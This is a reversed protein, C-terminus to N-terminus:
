TKSANEVTACISNLAGTDYISVGNIIGRFTQLEVTTHSSSYRLHEPSWSVWRQAPVEFARGPEGEVGPRSNNEVAATDDLGVGVATSLELHSGPPSIERIGGGGAASRGAGGRSGRSRDDSKAQLLSSMKDVMEQMKHWSSIIWGDRHIHPTTHRDDGGGACM